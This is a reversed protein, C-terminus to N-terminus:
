GGGGPLGGLYGLQPQIVVRAEVAGGRVHEEWVARGSRSVLERERRSGWCLACPTEAPHMHTSQSVSWGVLLSHSGPWAGEPCPVTVAEVKGACRIGVSQTGEYILRFAQCGAQPALLQHCSGTGGLAPTSSQTMGTM